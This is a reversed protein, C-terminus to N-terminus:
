RAGTPLRLGADHVSSTSDEALVPNTLSGVEELEIRVTDGPRLFRGTIDGVGEPTGSSVIDGPYLTVHGTLFELLAPVSFIMESTRASQRVEDNVYTRLALDDPNGITERIAVAPGLPAFTDLSKAMSINARVGPGGKQPQRASVDNCITLGAVYSWADAAAVNRAQRGIVLAMEGEYDISDPYRRPVRIAAGDAIIASTAKPFIFPESLQAGNIEAVHEAYNLGVAWLQRPWAVPPLVDVAARECEGSVGAAALGALGAGDQLATWIDPYPSALLEIASDDAALRGIGKSTMVLRVAM